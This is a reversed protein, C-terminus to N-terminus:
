VRRYARVLCNILSSPYLSLGLRTPGFPGVLSSAPTCLFPPTFPSSRLLRQQPAEAKVGVAKSRSHSSSDTPPHTPYHLQCYPQPIFVSPAHSSVAAGAPALQIDRFREVQRSKQGHRNIDDKGVINIFCSPQRGLCV